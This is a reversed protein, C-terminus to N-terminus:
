WYYPRANVSGSHVTGKGKHALPPERLKEAEAVLFFM